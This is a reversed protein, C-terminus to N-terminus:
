VELAMVSNVDEITSRLDELENGIVIIIGIVAAM